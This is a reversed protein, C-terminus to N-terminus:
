RGPFPPMARGGPGLGLQRRSIGPGGPTRGSRSGYVLNTHGEHSRSSQGIEVDLVRLAGDRDLSNQERWLLRPSYM